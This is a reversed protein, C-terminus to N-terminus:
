VRVDPMGLHVVPASTVQHVDHIEADAFFLSPGNSVAAAAGVKRSFKAHWVRHALGHHLFNPLKLMWLVPRAKHDNTSASM